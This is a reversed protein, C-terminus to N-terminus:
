VCRSRLRERNLTRFRVTASRPFIALPTKIHRQLRRGQGVHSLVVSMEQMRQTRSRVFQRAVFQRMAMYPSPFYLSRVM